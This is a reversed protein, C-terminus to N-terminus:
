SLDLAGSVVQDAVEVLRLGRGRAYSRLRHFADNPSEGHSRALYGKAQEIAVRSKLAGELQDRVEAQSDHLRHHFVTLTAVTAICQAIALDVESLPGVDTRLLTLGGLLYDRSRLPVGHASRFGLRHARTTFAPWQAQDLDLDPSSVVLGRRFSEAGPGGNLHDAFLEIYRDDAGCTAITTLAGSEDAIQVSASEADLLDVSADALNYLLDAVDLDPGASGGVDAVAEVLRM